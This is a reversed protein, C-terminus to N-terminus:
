FRRFSTQAEEAATVATQSVGRGSRTGTGGPPSLTTEAGQPIFEPSSSLSDKLASWTFSVDEGKQQVEPEVSVQFIFKQEVVFTWTESHRSESPDSGGAPFSISGATERPPPPPNSASLRERLPEVTVVCRLSM